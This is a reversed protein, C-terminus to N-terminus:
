CGRLNQHHPLSTDAIKLGLLCVGLLVAHDGKLCTRAVTLANSFEHPCGREKLFYIGADTVNDSPRWCVGM